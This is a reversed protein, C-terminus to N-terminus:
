GKLQLSLNIIRLCALSWWTDYRQDNLDFWVWGIENKEEKIQGNISVTLSAKFMKEMGWQRMRCFSKMISKIEFRCSAAIHIYMHQYKTTIINGLLDMQILKCNVIQLSLLVVPFFLFSFFPQLAIEQSLEMPKSRCM